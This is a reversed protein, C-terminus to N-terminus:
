VAHSPHPTLQGTKHHKQLAQHTVGPRYPEGCMVRELTDRDAQTFQQRHRMKQMLREGDESAWFERAKATLARGSTRPTIPELMNPQLTVSDHPDASFHLVLRQFHDQKSAAGKHKIVVGIRGSPTRALTGIPFDDLDLMQSM